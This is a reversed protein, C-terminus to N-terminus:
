EKYVKDIKLALSELVVKISVNSELAAFAEQVYLLAQKLANLRWDRSQAKLENLLDINYIRDYLQLKCLLLDHLLLQWLQLLLSAENRLLKGDLWKRHALYNAPMALPLAELFATAQQRYAFVNAESGNQYLSLAKGISGESIRALVEAQESDIKQQKLAQTVLPLSVAQFRLLVVRSLITPLLKDASAAILLMVWGAPPEELLKLFSNAAAISMKDVDEILCVRTPSMVAGQAAQTNLAKIQDISIDKLRKTKPDEERQILLFDPHALSNDALNMLRCAECNDTGTHHTCLLAKAFELALQRKGLGEAGVFLLAHPREAAQLYNQLFQKQRDHGLINEWM